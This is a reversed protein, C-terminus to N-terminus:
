RPMHGSRSGCRLGDDLLGHDFFSHDFFGHDLLSSDLLSSDLLSSDLNRRLGSAFLHLDDTDVEAARLDEATTHVGLGTPGSATRLLLCRPGTGIVDQFRNDFGDSGQRTSVLGIGNSDTHWAKDRSRALNARARIQGSPGFPNRHPLIQRCCKALRHDDGVIDVASGQGFVAQPRTTTDCIEEGDEHSGAHTAAQDQPSFHHDSRSSHGALDAMQRHVGTTPSTSAAPEAMELGVSAPCADLCSRSLLRRGTPSVHQSIVRTGPGELRAMQLNREILAVVNSVLQDLVRSSSQGEGEAADGREEIQGSDHETATHDVFKALREDVPDSGRVEETTEAVVHTLQHRSIADVIGPDHPRRQEGGIDHCGSFRGSLRQVRDCRPRHLCLHKTTSM